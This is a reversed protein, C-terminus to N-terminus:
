YGNKIFWIGIFSTDEAGGTQVHLPEFFSVNNFFRIFLLSLCIIFLLRFSLNLQKDFLHM